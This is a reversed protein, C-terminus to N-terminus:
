SAPRLGIKREMKLKDAPIDAPAANCFHFRPKRMNTVSLKAKQPLDQSHVYPLQKWWKIRVLGDSLSNGLQQAFQRDSLRGRSSAERPARIAMRSKVM